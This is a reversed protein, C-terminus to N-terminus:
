HWLGLIVGYVAFLVIVYGADILYLLGSRNSFQYNIGFATAVLGVGVYLGQTLAQYFTDAPPMLRAYATAAAAAFLIALGFVRAPNGQGAKGGANERQWISLFALPSYWFGGIAFCSLTAVLVALWNIAHM